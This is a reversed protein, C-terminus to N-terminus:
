VEIIKIKHVLLMLKRKIIYVDTKVGKVDIVDIRGNARTVRFDAKYSCKNELLKGNEDYQAPILVYEVQREIKVVRVDPEEANQLMCLSNYYDAEKKSDFGGVIKNNYKNKRTGKPKELTQNTQKNQLGKLDDMNGLRLTRGNKKRKPQALLKRAEECSIRDQTNITM